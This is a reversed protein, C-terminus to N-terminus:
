MRSYRGVPFKIRSLSQKQFDWNQNLSAAFTPLVTVISFVIAVFVFVYAIIRHMVYGEKIHIQHLSASLISLM